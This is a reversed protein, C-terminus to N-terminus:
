ILRRHNPSTKETQHSEHQPLRILTVNQITKSHAPYKRRYFLALPKHKSLLMVNPKWKQLFPMRPQNLHLTLYHNRMFHSGYFDFRTDIFVKTQPSRYILCSGVEADTFLRDTPKQQALYAEIGKMLRECKGLKAHHFQKPLVTPTVLFLAGLLISATLIIPFFMNLRPILSEAWKPKHVNSHWAYYLAQPLLLAYFLASWVVFRQVFLTFLTFTVLHLWQWPALTQRIKPLVFLLGLVLGLYCQYSLYHFNPSQLEVIINNMFEQSSLDTLYTYIGIGYPNILSSLFATCLLLGYNKLSKPYSQTKQEPPLYIEPVRHQIFDGLAMLTLSFLGIIVGTHMNGWLLYLGCMFGTLLATKLKEVRYQELLLLQVALFISTAIMPRLSINVPITMIVLTTPIISWLLPIQKLRSVTLPLLSYLCVTVIIFARLLSQEGLSRFGLATIVEFLWQYVVWPKEHHTWSFIDHHPIHHNDLIYNGTQIIWALDPTFAHDLMAFTFMNLSYFFVM